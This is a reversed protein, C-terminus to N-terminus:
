PRRRGPRSPRPARRAASRPRRAPTRPNASAVTMPSGTPESTPWAYPHCAANTRTAASAPAPSTPTSTKQGRMGARRDVGVAEAADDPTTAVPRTSVRARQHRQQREGAEDRHEGVHRRHEARHGPEAGAPDADRQDPVAQARDRAVHEGPPHRGRGDRPHQGHRERHQGDDQQRLTHEQAVRGRREDPRTTSPAAVNTTTGSSWVHSMACTPCAAAPSIAATLM